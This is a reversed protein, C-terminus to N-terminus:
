IDNAQDISVGRSRHTRDRVRTGGRYRRAQPDGSATRDSGQHFDDDENLYSLTKGTEKDVVGPARAAARRRDDSAPGSHQRGLKSGESIARPLEVEVVVMNVVGLGLAGTGIVRVLGEDQVSDSVAM